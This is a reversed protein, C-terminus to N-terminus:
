KGSPNRKAWDSFKRWQAYLEQAQLDSVSPNIEKAVCSSPNWNWGLSKAALGAAGLATADSESAIQLPM